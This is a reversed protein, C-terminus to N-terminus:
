IYIFVMITKQQWGKEHERRLISNSARYYQMCFLSNLVFAIGIAMINLHFMVWKLKINNQIMNHTEVPLRIFKTNSWYCVVYKWYFFYSSLLLNENNANHYYWQKRICYKQKKGHMQSQGINMKNSTITTVFYVTIISIWFFHFFSLM